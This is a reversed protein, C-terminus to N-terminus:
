VVRNTEDWKHDSYHIQNYSQVYKSKEEQSFLSGDTHDQYVVSNKFHFKIIIPLHFYPLTLIRNQSNGQEQLM